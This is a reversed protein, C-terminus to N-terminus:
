TSNPIFKNKTRLTENLVELVNKTSIITNQTKNLTILKIITELLVEMSLSDSNLITMLNQPEPKKHVTKLEPFSKKDFLSAFTPPNYKERNEAIKKIKIPCQGSISIHNGNCHACIAKEKPISCDKYNHNNSCISCREANKCYKSIHGYRLCRYCQKVPPVYPTINHRWGDLDVYDPLATAAFTIAITQTPERSFGGGDIFVKRYFRRICIIKKYSSLMTFIKKNSYKIPVNRIIGTVETSSAPINAKFNNEQLFTKNNLLANALTPKDFYVGIKYKNLSRLFKVGKNYRRLCNSLSLLDRSGIPKHSDASEIFVVFETKLSDEQYLRTYDTVYYPVISSEEGEDESESSTSEVLTCCSDADKDIEGKKRKKGAKNRGM